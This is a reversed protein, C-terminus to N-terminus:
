ARTAAARFFATSPPLWLLGAAAVAVVIRVLQYAAALGFASGALDVLNVVVFLGGLVTAWTRAGRRGRACGVANLIWVGAMVLGVVFGVVLVITVFGDLNGPEVDGRSLRRELADRDWAVLTVTADIAALVGGLVMLAVAARMTPPRPPVPDPEATRVEVPDLRWGSV